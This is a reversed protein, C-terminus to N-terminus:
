PDFSRAKSDRHYDDTQRTSERQYARDNGHRNQRDLQKNIARQRELDSQYSSPQQVQVPQQIPQPVQQVTQPQQLFSPQQVPYSPEQASEADSSSDSEFGGTSAIAAFLLCAGLLGFLLKM